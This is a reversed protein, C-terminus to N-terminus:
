KVGNRGMMGLRQSVDLSTRPLAVYSAGRGFCGAPPFSPNQFVGQELPNQLNKSNSSTTLCFQFYDGFPPKMTM